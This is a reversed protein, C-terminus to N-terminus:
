KDNKGGLLIFILNKLCTSLSSDCSVVIVKILDKARALVKKALFGAERLRAEDSSGPEIRGDGEYPDSYFPDLDNDRTRRSNRTNPLASGGTHDEISDKSDSPTEQTVNSDVRAYPPKPIHRPVSRPSIHSVGFIPPEPPLLIEYDGFDELDGDDMDQWERASDMDKTRPRKSSPSFTNHGHSHITTEHYKRPSLALAQHVDLGLPRGSAFSPRTTAFYSNCTRNLHKHLRLM